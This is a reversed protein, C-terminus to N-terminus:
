IASCEIMDTDWIRISKDDSGSAIINPLNQNFIVNYVREKHGELTKIPNNSVNSIDFM